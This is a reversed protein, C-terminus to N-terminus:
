GSAIRGNLVVSEPGRRHVITEYRKNIAGSLYLEPVVCARIQNGSIAGSADRQILIPFCRTPPPGISNAVVASGTDLAPRATLECQSAVYFDAAVRGEPEVDGRLTMGEDIGARRRVDNVVVSGTRQRNPGANADVSVRLQQKGAGVLDHLVTTRSHQAVYVGAYVDRARGNRAVLGFAYLQQVLGNQIKSGPHTEAAIASGGYSAVAGREKNSRAVQVQALVGLDRIRAQVFGHLRGRNNGVEAAFHLFILAEPTEDWARLM